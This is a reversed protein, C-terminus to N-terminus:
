QVFVYMHENLLPLNQRVRLWEDVTQCLVVVMFGMPTKRIFGMVNPIFTADGFIQSSLVKLNARGCVSEFILLYNAQRLVSCYLDSNNIINQLVLIGCLNMHHLFASFISITDKVKLMAELVDEFIIAAGPSDKNRETLGLEEFVTKRFGKVFIISDGLERQLDEYIHQWFSYIFYIKELKTSFIEDKNLLM